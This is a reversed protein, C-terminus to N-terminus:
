PEKTPEGTIRIGSGRIGYKKNMWILLSTLAEAAVCNDLPGAQWGKMAAAEVLEIVAQRADPSDGTVLVDCDIPHDGRLHEAGVNQFASVVRVEEGLLRQARVGASGEEPLQVRAVKPPVLPVTCDVFIKGQVADRVAELIPLQHGFPVTLVVIEAEAAATVNDTGRVDVDGLEQRLEAAAGEGKEKTRSGVIV